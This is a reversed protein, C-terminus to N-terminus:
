PLYPWKQLDFDFDLKENPHVENYRHTPLGNKMRASLNRLYGARRAPSLKSSNPVSSRASKGSLLILSKALIIPYFKTNGSPDLIDYHQAPNFSLINWHDFCKPFLPRYTIAMGNLQSCIDFLKIPIVALLIDWLSQALMSRKLNQCSYRDCQKNTAKKRETQQVDWNGFSTSYMNTHLNGDCIWSDEWCWSSGSHM